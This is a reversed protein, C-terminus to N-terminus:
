TNPVDVTVSDFRCYKITINENSLIAYGSDTNIEMSKGNIECLMTILDDGSQTIVVRTDGNGDEFIEYLHKDQPDTSATKVISSYIFVSNAAIALSILGYIIARLFKNSRKQKKNYYITLLMILIISIYASVILETLVWVPSESKVVTQRFLDAYTFVLLFYAITLIIKMPFYSKGFMNRPIIAFIFPFLFYLITIFFFIAQNVFMTNSQFYESPIKYFKECSVSYSIDYMYKFFAFVASICIALNIFNQLKMAELIKMIRTIIGVGQANNPISSGIADDSQSIAFYEKDGYKTTLNSNELAAKEGPHCNRPYAKKNRKTASNKM